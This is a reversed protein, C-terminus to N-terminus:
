RCWRRPGRGARRRGAVSSWTTPDTSPHVFPRRRGGVLEVVADAPGRRLPSSRDVAGDGGHVEFAGHELRALHRGRQGEHGLAAEAVAGLEGAHRDVAAGADHHPVAAAREHQRRSGPEHEVREGDVQGGVTHPEAEAAAGVAEHGAGVLEVGRHRDAALPM